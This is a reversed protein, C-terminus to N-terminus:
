CVHIETSSLYYHAYEVTLTQDTTSLPPSQRLRAAPSNFSSPTWCMRQTRHEANTPPPLSGQNSRSYCSRSREVMRYTM